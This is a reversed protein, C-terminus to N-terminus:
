EDTSPFDNYRNKLMLDEMRSRLLGWVPVSEVDDGGDSDSRKNFNFRKSFFQCKPGKFGNACKCRCFGFINNPMLLRGGNMCGGGCSGDVVTYLFSLLILNVIVVSYVQKRPSPRSSFKGNAM